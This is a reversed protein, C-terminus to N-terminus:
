KEGNGPRFIRDSFESVLLGTMILAAGTWGSLGLIENAVFYAFVAAIVPELSFIVASRTPTSDKQYRTQVYLAVITAFVVLYALEGVAAAPLALRLPETLAALGASLLGAVVFQAMTLKSASETEGFMDLFVIYLGFLLACGLTLVDGLAFGSGSPSTLFYLGVMVFAVGLLSGPKPMRRELAVQWLPTFVVLMGTIFASKSASTSQLGLTQLAFGAFLLLGLIGGKIVTSRNWALLSRYSLLGFLLAAASFRVAIYVFPTISSLLEKTVVFTSGWVFTILFLYLEARARRRDGNM